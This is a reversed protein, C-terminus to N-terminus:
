IQPLTVQLIQTIAELPDPLEEQWLWAVRLWFGSVDSSYFIGEATLPMTEWKGNQNRLFKAIQRDPDILWYERVGFEAYQKKKKVRDIHTSSPSIIEVVLNPAGDVCDHKVIHQREKSIFM